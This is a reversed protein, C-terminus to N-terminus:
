PIGKLIGKFSIDAYVDYLYRGAGDNVTTAISGNAQDYYSIPIDEAYINNNFVKNFTSGPAELAGSQATTTFPKGQLKKIILDNFTGDAPIYSM